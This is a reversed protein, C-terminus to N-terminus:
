KELYDPHLRFLSDQLEAPDVKMRNWQYRYTRYDERLWHLIPKEKLFQVHRINYELIAGRCMLCPEYTSVLLLSDRDLLSFDKRTYNHLVDSLANVEAHGGANSDRIVTNFGRGIIKNRYLVLASIPADNNQLATTALRTLERVLHTDLILEDHFLSSSKYTVIQFVMLLAFAVFLFLVFTRFPTKM